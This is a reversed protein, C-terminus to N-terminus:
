WIPLGAGFAKYNALCEMKDDQASEDIYRLASEANPIRQVEKKRIDYVYLSSFSYMGKERKTQIGQESVKMWPRIVDGKLTNDRYLLALAGTVDWDTEFVIGPGIWPCFGGLMIFSGPAPTTLHQSIDGLIQQQKKSADIWFSAITNNILCGCGCIFAISVNFVHKSTHRRFLIRSLLGTITVLSLAVGVTAAIAVRNNIGTGVKFYSYFYGYSVGSGLMGLFVLMSLVSDLPLQSNSRRAAQALYWLIMAALILTVVFVPWNWYNMAITLLVHPLRLGYAGFTLSVSSAFADNIISWGVSGARSSVETKFIVILMLIMPNGLYIMALEGWSQTVAKGTTELQRQKLALLLPNILFLPMFVEYALTSVILSLSALMQWYWISPRRSALKQLDCYLSAFYLSMSLNAQFSAYWFRDTSYHPLLGYVLTVALTILRNATIARLVLYFACLGSFFVATNVAHYGTPTLEFLLYLVAAYLAQIPRALTNSDALFLSRILGSLSQDTSFYFIRLFNWDDSYFGLRPVYLISSLIIILAVFSCDQVSSSRLTNRFVSDGDKM